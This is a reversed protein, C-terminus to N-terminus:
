YLQVYKGSKGVKKVYCENYFSGGNSSSLEQLNIEVIRPKEETKFGAGAGTTPVYVAAANRDKGESHVVQDDGGCGCCGHCSYGSSVIAIIGELLGIFILLAPCAIVSAGPFYYSDTNIVLFISSLIILIGGSIASLISFVLFATIKGYSTNKLSILGLIGTILFPIGCFIGEGITSIRGYRQPYLFMFFIQYFGVNCSIIGLVIQLISLAKVSNKKYKEKPQKKGSEILIVIGVDENEDKHTFDM